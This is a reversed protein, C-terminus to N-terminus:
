LPLQGTILLAAPQLNHNLLLLLYLYLFQMTKMMSLMIKKLKVKKPLPQRILTGRAKKEEVEYGLYVTPVSDAKYAIGVIHISCVKDGESPKWETKDKNQRKLARIWENRLEENM